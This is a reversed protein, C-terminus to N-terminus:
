SVEITFMMWNPGDLIFSLIYIAIVEHIIPRPHNYALAEKCEVKLIIKLRSFTMLCVLLDSPISLLQQHAVM